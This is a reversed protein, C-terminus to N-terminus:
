DLTALLGEDSNMRSSAVPTVDTLITSSCLRSCFLLIWLSSLRPESKAGFASTVIRFLAWALHVRAAAKAPASSNPNQASNRHSEPVGFASRQDFEEKASDERM